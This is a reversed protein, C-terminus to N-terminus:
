RKRSRTVKATLLVGNSGNAQQLEEGDHSRRTCRGSNSIEGGIETLTDATEQSRRAHVVEDGAPANIHSRATHTQTIFNDIVRNTVETITNNVRESVGDVDITFSIRGAITEQLRQAHTMIGDRESQLSEALWLPPPFLYARELTAVEARM